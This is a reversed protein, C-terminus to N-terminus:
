QNEEEEYYTCHTTELINGINDIKYTAGGKRFTVTEESFEGVWDLWEDSVFHGHWKIIINYKGDKCVVLFSKDIYVPHQWEDLLLKGDIDIYNYKPGICVVFFGNCYRSMYDFWEDSLLKGDTGIHNFKDDREVMAYGNHFGGADDWWEESLLKGDTGIHNYKNGKHVVSYGEQFDWANDWWETSLLKGDTGIHNYKGDKCVLAYGEYFYGADDWWEESLLKGDTGIHNYKDGKRVRAYGDYFNEAEDFVEVGSMDVEHLITIESCVFKGDGEESEIVEGGCEVECFVNDGNNPYFPWTQHLEHCAHFGRECLEIEGDYKYTEGVEYTFDRCTLTGYSKRNFGKFAKMHRNQKLNSPCFYM